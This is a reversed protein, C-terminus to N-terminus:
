EHMYRQSGRGVGHKNYNKQYFKYLYLKLITELTGAMPKLYQKDNTSADIYMYTFDCSMIEFSLSSIDHDPLSNLVHVVILRAQVHSVVLPIPYQSVLKWFFIPFLHVYMLGPPVFHWLFFHLFLNIFASAYLVKKWPLTLDCFLM